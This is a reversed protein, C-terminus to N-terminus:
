MFVRVTAECSPCNEPYVLLGVPNKLTWLVVALVVVVVVAVVVLHNQM